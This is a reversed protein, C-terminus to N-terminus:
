GGIWGKALKVAEMADKGYADAGTHKRVEEDIQGGGVMIKVKDRLGAKKVDEITEKMVDFTLTLFGSLAVVQPQFDRIAEAFKQAPVDVGLDLVEFGNADLM